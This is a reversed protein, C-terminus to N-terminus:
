RGNRCKRFPVILPCTLGLSLPCTLKVELQPSCTCSQKCWPTITTKRMAYAYIHTVLTGWQMCLILLTQSINRGKGWLLHRNTCWCPLLVGGEPLDCHVPFQTNDATHHLQGGAHICDCLWLNSSTIRRKSINLLDYDWGTSTPTILPQMLRMWFLSLLLSIAAPILLEVFWIEWNKRQSNCHKGIAYLWFISFGHSVLSSSLCLKACKFYVIWLHM